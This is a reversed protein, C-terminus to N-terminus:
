AIKIQNTLNALEGIIESCIRRTWLRLDTAVQDNRAGLIFNAGAPTIETLWREVLTHIDEDSPM